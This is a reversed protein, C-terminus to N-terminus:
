FRIDYIVYPFFHLMNNLMRRFATKVLIKVTHLISSCTRGRRTGM